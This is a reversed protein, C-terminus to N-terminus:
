LIVADREVNKHFPSIRGRPSNWQSRDRFMLSVVIGVGLEWDFVSARIDNQRVISLPANVLVLIDYDSEEDHTGRAVSGFLLVEAGPEHRRVIDKIALLTDKCQSSITEVAELAKM